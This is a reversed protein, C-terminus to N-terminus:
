KAPALPYNAPDVIQFQSGKQRSELSESLKAQALHDKLDNYQRNLDTNQRVVKALEEEGEPEDQVRKSYKAIESEIYKKDQERLRIEFNVGQLQSTVTEFVPNRNSGAKPNAEEQKFEALKEPPIKTQLRELEAKASQVEPHKPTFKLTLDE